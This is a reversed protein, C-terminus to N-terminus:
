SFHGLSFFLSHDFEDRFKEWDEDSLQFLLNQKLFSLTGTNLCRKLFSLKKEGEMELLCLIQNRTEGIGKALRVVVIKDGLFVDVDFTRGSEFAEVLKDAYQKGGVQSLDEGDKLGSYEYGYVEALTEGLVKKGNVPGENESSM